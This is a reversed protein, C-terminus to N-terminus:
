VVSKRDGIYLVVLWTFLYTSNVEPGGKAEFLMWVGLMMIPAGVILWFRYRGIRTRTRDMLLGVAPDFFIDLLKVLAFIGGVALLSIGMLAAYYNPLYVLLPTTLAGVPIASTAFAAVVFAPIRPGKPAPAGTEPQSM